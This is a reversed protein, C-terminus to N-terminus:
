KTKSNVLNIELDTFNMSLGVDLSLAHFWDFAPHSPCLQFDDGCSLSLVPEADQEEDGYFDFM